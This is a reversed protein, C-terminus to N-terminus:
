FWDVEDRPLQIPRGFRKVMLEYIHRRSSVLTESCFIFLFVEGCRVILSLDSLNKRLIRFNVYVVHCSRRSAKPGPNEEM